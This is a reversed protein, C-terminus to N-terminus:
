MWYSTDREEQKQRHRQVEEQSPIPLPIFSKFNIEDRLSKQLQLTRQCQIAGMM